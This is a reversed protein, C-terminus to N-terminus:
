LISSLWPRGFASSRILTWLCDWVGDTTLGPRLKPGHFRWDATAPTTDLNEGAIAPMVTGLVVLALFALLLRCPVKM